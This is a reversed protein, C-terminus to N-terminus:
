EGLIKKLFSKRHIKDIPGKELIMERHAKTGYGKHKEFTYEPYLKAIELMMRDRTVKAIISAAAISLSKSDGKIVPLQEGIYERIRHNGDVLIKEFKVKKEIEEIARRMALFTANLINIEDIEDVSAIGIGIDFNEMIIDFLEERVKETLKKSDNIKELKEDYKKLKAVAAVVPGALPGRGAEDVGIIDGNELDFLYMINKIDM